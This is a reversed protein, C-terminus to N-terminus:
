VNGRNREAGAVSEDIFIYERGPETERMAFM